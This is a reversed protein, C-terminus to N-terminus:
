LEYKHKAGAKRLLEYYSKLAKENSQDKSRLLEDKIYDLITRGDSEDITNLPVKWDYLARYLFESFSRYAVLKLINGRMVNFSTENCVFRKENNIWLDHVKKNIVDFSDKTIDAGAMKYIREEFEYEYPSDNRIDQRRDSVCSCLPGM